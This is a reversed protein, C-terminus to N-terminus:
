GKSKMKARRAENLAKNRSYIQQKSMKKSPKRKENVVKILTWLRQFHWKQCEFPINLEIMYYYVVEATVIEKGSGTQNDESFWTATMPSNIYDIIENINEQSLNLYVSDDVNKNITMCKFYDQLQEPTISRKELSQLFPVRWKSEWKSISVLSHEMQLEQGKVTVFENTKENYLEADPSHITLM